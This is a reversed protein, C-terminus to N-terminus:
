IRYIYIKESKIEKTLKLTPFKICYCIITTGKKLKKMKPELKEMTLNPLYCFIVDAKSLDAKYFNARLIKANQLRDFKIRAASIMWKIPDIEIGITKANTGSAVAMVLRADGSGLDYFTKGKRAKVEKVVREIASAKTPTWYSGFFSTLFVSGSIILLLLIPIAALTGWSALLAFFLIFLLFVIEARFTSIM